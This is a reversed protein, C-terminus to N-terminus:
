VIAARLCVSVLQARLADLSDELERKDGRDAKTRLQLELSRVQLTRERLERRLSNCEARTQTHASATEELMAQM